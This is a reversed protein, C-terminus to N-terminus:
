HAMEEKPAVFALQLSLVSNVEELDIQKELYNLWEFTAHLIILVRIRTWDTKSSEKRVSKVEKEFLNLVM